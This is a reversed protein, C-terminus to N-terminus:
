RSCRICLSRAVSGAAVFLQNLPQSSPQGRRHSQPVSHSSDAAIGRTLKPQDPLRRGSLSLLIEICDHQRQRNLWQPPKRKGFGLQSGGHAPVKGVVIVRAM